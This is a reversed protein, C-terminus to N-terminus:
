DVIFLPLAIYFIFSFELKEGFNRDNGDNIDDIGDSIVDNDINLDLGDPIDSFLLLKRDTRATYIGTVSDIDVHWNPM